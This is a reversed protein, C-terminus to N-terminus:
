PYHHKLFYSNSDLSTTYTASRYGVNHTVKQQSNEALKYGLWTGVFTGLITAVLLIAANIRFRSTQKDLDAVIKPILDNNLKLNQDTLKVIRDDRERIQREHELEKEAEPKRANCWALIIRKHDSDHARDPILREVSAIIGDFFLVGVRKHKQWQEELYNEAQPQRTRIETVIHNFQADNMM